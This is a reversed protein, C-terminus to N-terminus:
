VHTAGKKEIIHNVGAETATHDRMLKALAEPEDSYFVAGPEYRFFPKGKKFGNKSEVIQRQRVRQGLILRCLPVAEAPLFAESLAVIRSLSKRPIKDGIARLPDHEYAKAELIFTSRDAGIEVQARQFPLAEKTELIFTFVTDSSHFKYSEKMFFANEETQGERGKKIGVSEITRFIDDFAHNEGRDDFLNEQLGEKPHFDKFLIPKLPKGGTMVNAEGEYPEIGTDLPSPIMFCERHRIMVPSLSRIIGLDNNGTYSFGGKGALHIAKRYNETDRGGRKEKKLSDVWEGRKHLTMCGGEILLTKRLMGVLASQSPFRRSIARYRQAEQREDDAGFTHEGGFFFDGIPKLTILYRYDSM